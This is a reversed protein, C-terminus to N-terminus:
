NLFDKNKLFKVLFIKIVRLALYILSSISLISIINVISINLGLAKFFEGIIDVKKSTYYYFFHWIFITGLNICLIKKLPFFIYGFLINIM